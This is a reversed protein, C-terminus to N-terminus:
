SKKEANNIASSEAEQLATKALNGGQSTLTGVADKAGFKLADKAKVIAADDKSDVAKTGFAAIGILVLSLAGIAEAGLALWSFSGSPKFYDKWYLFANAMCALWAAALVGALAYALAQYSIGWFATATGLRKLNKIMPVAWITVGILGMLVGFLINSKKQMEEAKKDEQKGWDGIAKLKSAEPAAFDASGTETTEVGNDFSMGGSDKSSALFARSGENSSRFSNRAADASRKSIDKLDNGSSSHSGSGVRSDRGGATFRSTSRGDAGSLSIPNTGGPMAGSFHYGEGSGSSGLSIGSASAGRGASGSGSSSAGGGFSSSVGSGSARAMSASALTNQGASTKGGAASAGVANGNVAAGSVAARGGAASAGVERTENGGMGLGDTPSTQAAPGIAGAVSRGMNDAASLGFDGGGTRAAEIRAREEATAVQNLGDKVNISTLGGRADGRMGSYTYPNSISSLSRVQMEEMKQKDAQFATYTVLMGVGAIAALQPVGFVLKGAKNKLFHFMNM